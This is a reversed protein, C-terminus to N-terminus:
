KCTWLYMAACGRFPRWAEAIKLLQSATPAGTARLLGLDTEPFADTDRGLRLSLYQITWPGFGPAAQLAAAVEEWSPEDLRIIGRAVREAFVRVTQARAGTLGLSSLDAGALRVPDLGPCREVLRGMITHAAKVSVQQGLITRLCLEFPEWCGPPRLGPLRRVMPGLLPCRKLVRSVPRPYHRTDFLREMRPILGALDGDGEISCRLAPATPDYVVSVIGHPTRRLYRGAAISELGPTCRHSLYALIAAWPYPTRVPIAIM